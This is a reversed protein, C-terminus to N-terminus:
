FKIPKYKLWDFQEKNDAIELIYKKFADEGIAKVAEQAKEKTSFCVIGYQLGSASAYEVRKSQCVYYAYWKYGVLPKEWDKSTVDSMDKYKQQTLLKKKYEQAQKETGFYNGTDFRFDDEPNGYDYVNSVNGCNNTFYYCSDREARWRKPQESKKIIGMILEKDTDSINELNITLNNMYDSWELITCGLARYCDESGFTGRNTYAIHEKHKEWHTTELYSDGDCWRMDHEHMQRCFDDAEEKTKCHVAINNNKNKFEEWNFQKMKGM